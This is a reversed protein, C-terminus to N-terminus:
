LVLPLYTTYNLGAQFSGPSIAGVPNGASDFVQNAEVTVTYTGRDVSDWAGGPATIQYTATHPTGNGAPTVSVLTTLQNFGGPGTVRIDSGDLSTVDIALNDGFSVTFTYTTGGSLGVNPAVLSGATPATKDITYVAGASFNGNASGNGGLRNGASDRISDDDHLDLRITGSGSGTNVSVTYTTGSGSVGTVSADTLGAASVASFDSTDV